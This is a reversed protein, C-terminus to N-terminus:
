VWVTASNGIACPWTVACSGRGWFPVEIRRPAWWLKPCDKRRWRDAWVPGKTQNRLLSFDDGSSDV